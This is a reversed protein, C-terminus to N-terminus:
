ILTIRNGGASLWANLATIDANGGTNTVSTLATGIVAGAATFDSGTIITGTGVNYTDGTFTGGIILTDNAISFQNVIVGSVISTDAFVITDNGDAAPNPNNASVGGTAAIQGGSITGKVAILDAGINGAFTTDTATVGTSIVLTDDGGGAQFNYGTVNANVKAIDDGGGLIVSRNALPDDVTSATLTTNIVLSDNGAKTDFGTATIGTGTITVTDNFNFTVGVPNTGATVASFVTNDTTLYTGGYYSTTGLTLTNPM